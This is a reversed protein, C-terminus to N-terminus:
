PRGATAIVFRMAVLLTYRRPLSALPHGAVAVFGQLRGTYCGHRGVERVVPPTVAHRGLECYCYCLMM